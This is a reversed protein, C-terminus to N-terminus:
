STTGGFLSHGIRRALWLALPRTLAALAVHLAVSRTRRYWSLPALGEPTALHWARADVRSLARLVNAYGSSDPADIPLVVVDFTGPPHEWVRDFGSRAPSFVHVVDVGPLLAAERSRNPTTLVEITAAPWALLIDALTM